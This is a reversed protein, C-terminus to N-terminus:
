EVQIIAADAKRLSLNCGRVRIEVPDGLPAVKIVSIEVGKTLGMGLLRAKMPGAGDIGALRVTEGPRINQLTNMEAEKYLNNWLFAAHL